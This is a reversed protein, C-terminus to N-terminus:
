LEAVLRQVEQSDPMPRQLIKFILSTDGEPLVPLLDKRSTFAIEHFNLLAIAPLVHSLKGETCRTQCHTLYLLGQARTCAVYLLRREEDHDESRAFPFAGGEFVLLVFVVPWELGKAAHCTSIIVKPKNAEEEATQTDTSLMSSELFHRLPTINGRNLEAPPGVNLEADTAPPSEDDETYSPPEMQSAFTILERVNEWRTEWDPQTSKLHEQYEILELLNRILEDAYEGKKAQKRLELIVKVFPAVKRRLPPKTDPIDDSVIGEVMAMPSIGNKKAQAVLEEISKNGIGRKPINVVRVFAPTFTPNDVVQLYALLDKVELREFFKKGGLFRHPIGERQFATEITRSLANYRLLVVFDGYGFSGGSYAVLRRIEKALFIGEAREDECKNLIPLPGNGHSTYLTKPIRKKDESIIALCVRLIGATSRYNEELFIQVTTPLRTKMKQLNEVDASRWGYISQDPDGVISICKNASALLEMLEFQIANTDQFEDVLVHRTNKVINPDTKLLQVGFILLDDFDLSNTSKLEKAYEEYVEAIIRSNESIANLAFNHGTGVAALKAQSPTIGKAKFHSIESLVQAPKLTLPVDRVVALHPKLLDKIIRKSEDADCISFNANLYIRTGYIRLLKACIAHFTGMVLSMTREPGILKKLRERMENAAKNTFTVACIDEPSISYHDVLHAVRCTLVRTKGSGPGALIQLPVSPDHTVAQHQAPNLSRLYEATGQM